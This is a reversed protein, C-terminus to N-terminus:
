TASAHCSSQSPPSPTVEMMCGPSGHLSLTTRVKPWDSQSTVVVMNWTGICYWHLARTTAGICWHVLAGMGWHGCAEIGWHVM